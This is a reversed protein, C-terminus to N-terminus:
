GGPVVSEKRRWISLGPAGMALAGLTPSDPTPTVPTAQSQEGDDAGNTRGAVIGKGPVTEYAYGTLTAKFGEHRKTTVTLRAWGFHFRGNMLFKVGVYRNKVGKGGNMWPGRWRGPSTFSDYSVSGMLGAQRSRFAEGGVIKNGAKIAAVGTAAIRFANPDNTSSRCFTAEGNFFPELCAVLSSGSRGRFNYHVLYFDIVGDHNFDIPLAKGIIEVHAPTYIIKAEGPPALALLAVGAASAALAYGNLQRNLSASLNVTKRPGSSRKM